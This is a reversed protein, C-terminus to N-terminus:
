IKPNSSGQALAPTGTQCPFKNFHKLHRSPQRCPDWNSIHIHILNNIIGQPSGTSPVLTLGSGKLKKIKFFFKTRLGRRWRLSGQKVHPFKNFNKLNGSPQKCPDWISINIHILNSIIGQPSGTIPVLTMGSGKLKIKNKM